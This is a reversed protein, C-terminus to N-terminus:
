NPVRENAKAGPEPPTLPQKSRFGDSISDSFDTNIERWLRHYLKKYRSDTACYKLAQSVSRLAEYKIGRRKTAESPDEVKDIIHVARSHLALAKRYHAKASGLPSDVSMEIARNADSLAADVDGAVLYYFSRQELLKAAAESTGPRDEGRRARQDATCEVGSHRDIAVTLSDVAAALDGERLKSNALKAYSDREFSLEGSLQAWLKEEDRPEREPPPRHPPMPLVKYDRPPGPYTKGMVEQLLLEVEPKQLHRPSMRGRRQKRRHGRVSGTPSSGCHSRASQTVPSLVSMRDATSPRSSAISLGTSIYPRVVPSSSSSTRPRAPPAVPRVQLELSPDIGKWEDGV